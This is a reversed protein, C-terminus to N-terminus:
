KKVKVPPTNTKVANTKFASRLLWHKKLGQMLDDADLIAKNIGTVLNTNQDIQSHLNSTINALNLLTLNLNSVTTSLNTDTDQMFTRATGLTTTVNTLTTHATTITANANTLVGDLKAKTDVPFLWQGLSGNPDHLNSTIAAVNTLVTHIQNTLALIGPLAEEVKKVVADLRETLAPTEDMPLWYKEPGTRKWPKYAGSNTWDPHGYADTKQSWIGTVVPRNGVVETDYTPSLGNTRGTSGGKTIELFRGGLFDSANIKVASDNWIYDHYPEHVVFEVYINLYYTPRMPKIVTIEGCPFGMLKVPDHVKLGTGASVYTYYPYKELLWGKRQATHWLYYSFGGLMLLTALLVFLGVFREVRSLRTRLQPTLDNFAM